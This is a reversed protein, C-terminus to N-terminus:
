LHWLRSHIKHKPRPTFGRGSARTQIRPKATHRVFRAPEQIHLSPRPPAILLPICLTSQM